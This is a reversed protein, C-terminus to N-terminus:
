ESVAGRAAEMAGELRQLPGPDMPSWLTVATEVVAEDDSDVLDALGVHKGALRSDQVYALAAHYAVLAVDRPLELSRFEGRQKSPWAALVTQLLDPTHKTDGEKEVKLEPVVLLAQGPLPGSEGACAGLVLDRCKSSTVFEELESVRRSMQARLRAGADVLEARRQWSGPLVLEKQLFRLEGLAKVPDSLGSRVDDWAGLRKGLDTLDQHLRATDALWLRHPSACWDCFVLAFLDPASVAKLLPRRRFRAFRRRRTTTTCDRQQHIVRERDQFFGVTTTRFRAPDAGLRELLSLFPKLTYTNAM